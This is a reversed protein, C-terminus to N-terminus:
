YEGGLVAGLDISMAVPLFLPLHKAELAAVGKIGQMVHTEQSVVLLLILWM